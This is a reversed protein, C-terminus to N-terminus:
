RSGEFEKMTAEGDHSIGRSLLVEKVTLFLIKIDFLFSREEVYRVDLAFKEDWDLSNRGKVQALGTIGPKVELRRRQFPTYKSLYGEPLPRPGVLSMDGKLVNVIQPIEDLSTKRLFIGLKTLREKDSGGSLKMTRFKLINFGKGRLGSRMQRFFVPKGDVFFVALSVIAMLLLWLPSFFLIVTLEFLRNM